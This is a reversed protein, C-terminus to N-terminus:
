RLSKMAEARRADIYEALDGIHVGRAAKQSKEISILPLRIEGRAIKGKLKEVSLHPFYDSCVREIPIVVMGDYQALLLFTTKM